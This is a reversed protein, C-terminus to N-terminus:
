LLLVRFLLFHQLLFLPLFALLLGLRLDREARCARRPAGSRMAPAPDCTHTGLGLVTKRPVGLLGDIRDSPSNCRTRPSWRTMQRAWWEETSGQITANLSM